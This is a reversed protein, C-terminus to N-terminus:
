HSIHMPIVEAGFLTTYIGILTIIIGLLSLIKGLITMKIMFFSNEIDLKVKEGNRNKYYDESTLYTWIGSILIGLGITIFADFNRVIMKLEILGAVGWTVLLISVILYVPVLIGKGKYIIM